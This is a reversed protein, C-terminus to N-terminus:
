AQLILISGDDTIASARESAVDEQREEREERFAIQAGTVADLDGTLLARDVVNVVGMFVHLPSGGPASFQNEVGRFVGESTERVVRDRSRRSLRGLTSSPLFEAAAANNGAFDALTGASMLLSTAIFDSAGIGVAGEGSRRIDAPERARARSLDRNTVVVTDDNRDDEPDIAMYQVGDRGSITSVALGQPAAGSLELSALQTAARALQGTANGASVTGKCELAKFTFARTNRYDPYVLLYDPQRDLVRLDAGLHRLWQRGEHLALDVDVISVPGHAGLHRCWREALLCGFGVGLDESMVRRQNARVGLGAESLGLEGTPSYEFVGLYRLWGWHRYWDYVDDSVLPRTARALRLMADIPRAIFGRNVGAATTVAKAPLHEGKAAAEAVLADVEAQVANVLGVDSRGTVITPTHMVQLAELLDMGTM